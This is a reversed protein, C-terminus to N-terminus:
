KSLYDLLACQMLIKIETLVAQVKTELARINASQVELYNTRGAKYSDYVMKAIEDMEFISEQQIGRQVKLGSLQDKSKQWDRLLDKKVQEGKKENSQALKEQEQVQESVRGGEFLPITAMVGFMNQHVSELIPGNPYDVSSKANLQIKPWHGSKFGKSMERFSEAAKLLVQVNSSNLNLEASECSKFKELSDAIFDLKFFVAPSLMASPDSGSLKEDTIFLLDVNQNEGTLAFLERLALAFNTQAEVLRNKRYLFEQHAQLEDTRSSVGALRRKRIDQYQDWSLKLSEILLNVQELTLQVQFYALRANLVLQNRVSEAERKKSGELAKLSKWMNRIAGSDWIMWNLSPGVSYNSHDGFSIPKAGPVPM